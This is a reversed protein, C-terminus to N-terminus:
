TASFRTLPNAVGKDWSAPSVSETRVVGEKPAFTKGGGGSSGSKRNLFQRWFFRRKRGYFLAVLVPRCLPTLEAWPKKKASLVVRFVIQLIKGVSGEDTSRNSFFISCSKRLYFREGMGRQLRAPCFKEGMWDHQNQLPSEQQKRCSAEYAGRGREREEKTQEDM